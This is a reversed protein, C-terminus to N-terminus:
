CPETSQLAGNEATASRTASTKVPREETNLRYGCTLCRRERVIRGVQATTRLVEWRAPGCIPCSLGRSM